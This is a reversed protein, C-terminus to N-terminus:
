PLAGQSVTSDVGVIAVAPPTGDDFASEWTVANSGGLVDIAMVRQVWIQNNSGLVNLHQCTGTLTLLNGSGVLNLLGDGCDFTLELGSELVNHVPLVVLPLPDPAPEPAPEPVPVPIVADIHFVRNGLGTLNQGPQNGALSRVWGVSNSTGTIEIRGVAEVSVVNGTGSVDLRPCSGTLVITNGAGGLAINQDGCAVTQQLGNGVIEIAASANATGLATLGLWLGLVCTLRKGSMTEAKAEM